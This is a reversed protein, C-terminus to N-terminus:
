FVSAAAEAQVVALAVARIQGAALGAQFPAANASIGDIRQELDSGEVNMAHHAAAAALAIPMAAGAKQPLHHYRAVSCIVDPLRWNKIVLAGMQPHLDDLVAPVVDDRLWNDNDKGLQALKALLAVRGIDALLGCLFGYEHETRLLRCIASTTCAMIYARRNEAAMKGDLAGCRFVKGMMLAFAIDRLGSIGIRVIAQRIKSIPRTSGYAVSSAVSLVRGALTSDRSVLEEARKIDPNASSAIGNLEVAVQPLPPIDVRGDVSLRDIEERLVELLEASNEIAEIRWAKAPKTIQPPRHDM